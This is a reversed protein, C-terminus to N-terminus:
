AGDSGGGPIGRGECDPDSIPCGPGGHAVGPLAYAAHGDLTNVGDEDCQGSPDDDECEPAGDMADLADIAAQILNEVSRRPAIEVGMIYALVPPLTVPVLDPHPASHAM